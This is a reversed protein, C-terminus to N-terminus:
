ACCLVVVVKLKIVVWLVMDAGWDAVLSIGERVRVLLDTSSSAIGPSSVESTRRQSSYPISSALRDRLDCLEESLSQLGPLM